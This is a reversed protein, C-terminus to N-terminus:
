HGTCGCVGCPASLTPSPAVPKPEGRPVITMRQLFAVESPFVVRARRIPDTRRFRAPIGHKKLLRRVHRYSCFLYRPLNAVDIPEELNNVQIRPPRGGGVGGGNSVSINDDM